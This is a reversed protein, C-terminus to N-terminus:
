RAVFFNGVKKLVGEPSEGAREVVAVNVQLSPHILKGGLMCAYNGSLNEAIWKGKAIAQPKPLAVVVIFEDNSWRGTVADPPLANCLRKAFGGALEEQVEPVRFGMARILLLCYEGTIARIRDEMERRTCLGTLSDVAAATELEDIRKHLM